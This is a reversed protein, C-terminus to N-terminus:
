WVWLFGGLVVVAALIELCLYVLAAGTFRRGWKNRWINRAVNVLSNRMKEM